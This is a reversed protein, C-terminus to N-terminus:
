LYSKGFINRFDERSGINNEFYEQAFGKIKNDLVKNFHVGENSMNHHRSCLWVTMGYETSKKRNANGFFVHHLHLDYTTKCVFCEKYHQLVSKMPADEGM